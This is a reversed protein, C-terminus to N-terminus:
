GISPATVPGRSTTVSPRSAYLNGYPGATLGTTPTSRDRSKRSLTLRPIRVM